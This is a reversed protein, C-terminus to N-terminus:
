ANRSESLAHEIRGLLADILVALLAVVLCGEVVYATNGNVLGAIIPDGLSTAGVISGVTATGIAIVVSSRIGAMILPTALPLEVRALIQRPSLGMGRAAEVASAPTSDLAALTTQLVPLLGYLTLAVITPLAGFGILPVALGLVAVPPVTQGLAVLGEAVARFDRAFGRTVLIAGGTGLVIAIAAAISVLWLHSLALAAFSQRDYIPKVNEPALAQVLPGAYPMAAVLAVFAVALWLLPDRALQVASV